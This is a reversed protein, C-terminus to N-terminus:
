ERSLHGSQNCNYCRRSHSSFTSLATEEAKTEARTYKTEEHLLRNVLIDFTIGEQNDLTTILASFKPNNELASLITSTMNEETIQKGAANLQFGLRQVETALDLINTKLEVRNLQRRLAAKNAQSVARFHNEITQWTEAAASACGMTMATMQESINFSAIAQAVAEKETFEETIPDPIEVDGLLHPLVGAVAAAQRIKHQWIFFNSADVLKPVTQLTTKDM